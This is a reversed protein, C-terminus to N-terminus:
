RRKRLLGEIVPAMTARMHDYTMDRLFRDRAKRGLAEAAARNNAIWVLKETIAAEDDPPVLLGCGDLYKPIDSLASAIIIKGMAMADTLKAPMQGLSEPVNRQPLVIVDAAAHLEPVKSLPFPPMLVIRDGFRRRLEDTFDDGEAAAGAILVRMRPNNAKEAATAVLDTGKQRQATGIFGVVLDDDGFGLQRRIAQRDFRAPDFLNADRGHPVIVGGYRERFFESVTLVADVRTHLPHVLRTHLYGSTNRLKSVLSAQKGPVTQALEDDDVDLIVPTGSTARKVMALGFSPLRPKCAIIVDGDMLRLLARMHPLYGPLLDGAVSRMPFKTDKIPPWLARGGGGFVSGVLEVEYSPALAEALALCRATCNTSLNMSVISIKTM